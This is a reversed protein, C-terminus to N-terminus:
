IWLINLPVRVGADGWFFLGTYIYVCACICIYIDFRVESLSCHRVYDEYLLDFFTVFRCENSGSILVLRIFIHSWLWNIGVIQYVWCLTINLIGLMLNLHCRKIVNRRSVECLNNKQLLWLHWRNLDTHFPWAIGICLCWAVFTYVCYLYLEMSEWGLWQMHTYYLVNKSHNRQRQLFLINCDTFPSRCLGWFPFKILECLRALKTVTSNNCSWKM